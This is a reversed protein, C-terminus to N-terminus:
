GSPGMVPKGEAPPYPGLQPKQVGDFGAPPPAASTPPYATPYAAPTSGSAGPAAGVAPPPGPAAGIPTATTNPYAVPEPAM